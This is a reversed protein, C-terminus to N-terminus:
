PRGSRALRPFVRRTKGRIRSDTRRRRREVDRRAKEAAPSVGLVLERRTEDREPVAPLGRLRRDGAAALEAPDAVAGERVVPRAREACAAGAAEADLGVEGRAAERFVQDRLRDGGRALAERLARPGLARESRERDRVRVLAGAGPTEQGAAAEGFVDHAM